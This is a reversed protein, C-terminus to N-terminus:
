VFNYSLPAADFESRHAGGGPVTRALASRVQENQLDIEDRKEAWVAAIRACLDDYLKTYHISYSTIVTQSIYLLAGALPAAVCPSVIIASFVGMAAVSAM